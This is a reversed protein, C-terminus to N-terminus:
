MKEKYMTVTLNGGIIVAILGERKRRIFDFLSKPFIIKSYVVTQRDYSNGAIAIISRKTIHTVSYTNLASISIIM